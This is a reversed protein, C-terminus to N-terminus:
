DERWFRLHLLAVIAFIELRGLAMILSLLAKSWPTMWGFDGMAGVRGLGPGIASLCAISSTAATTYDCGEGFWQELLMVAVSGAAFTVIFGLFFSMTELKVDPAVVHGGVRVPRVVQPRFIQEIEAFLVKAAIWVRVVKIGGSTSGSSGGIFMLLLLVAHALFPWDNYDATCFGTTTALSVTTFTAHRVAEAATAEETVGTTLALSRGVLSAAIVLSGAALLALYTRLETDNLVTAFRRRSLAFYLSFNVGGLVMFVIVIWDIAASRYEGISATRTSFGGTSLTAFTHCLADFLSMGAALLAVVQAGTLILYITLLLRATQRIQPQFAEPSRGAAEIRFLRKGGVGLSPLVAVFLVVIGLGGIWQTLARWLLLSHPISEIDHPVALVTAGTTTLGSMSEFYCDIFRRFPHEPATGALHAWFLYPLAAYAAGLLWSTAVLLLAERRGLHPAAGRTFGWLVAGTGLACGAALLLARLAGREAEDGGALLIASLGALAALLLGLMAALAALQRLIFRFSM